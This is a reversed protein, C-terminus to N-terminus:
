KTTIGPRDDTRFPSAPLGAANILNCEPNNAWAYRAEAPNQVSDARIVVTDGDVEADAWVFPGDKEAIAFGTVKGGDASKLGESHDFQIRIRNGEVSMSRFTPGSWAVDRDYVKAEAVLALRKGVDQKNIPHIDKEDGLDIISTTWVNPVNKAVAIQAARVEAWTSDAPEALRPMYSTLQVILFPFDGSGWKSRWDSIMATLLETYCLAYAANSEGQYWIAGRISFPMLPHIMANYIASPQAHDTVGTTPDADRVRAKFEAITTLQDMELLRPLSTWWEAMTGGWSTNIIGVPVGLDQHLKRGFFYGVGSFPAATEPSCRAWRITADEQPTAAWVQSVQCLRIEPYNASAIEAEPNASQAVGWSMNSQGSAVWVEGILVDTLVRKDSGAQITIEVPTSSAAPADIDIRWRGDADAKSGWPNAQWPASISVMEGPAAWGWFHAKANQQLVMHDSLISPLRFEALAAQASLFWTIGFTLAMFIRM